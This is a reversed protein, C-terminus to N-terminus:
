GAIGPIKLIDVAILRLIFVAFIIVLLGTVASTITEKGGQIVKPDGNSTMIVVFGYIMLLFAVGGGVGLMISLLWTAFAKAEVPVCGLATSVGMNAGVMCFVDVDSTAFAVKRQFCAFAFVLVALWKGFKM